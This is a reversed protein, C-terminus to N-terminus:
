EHHEAARSGATQHLAEVYHIYEVYSAVYRRGAPVSAEAGKKLAAAQAFKERLGAAVRETIERIMEDASGTDLARDALAIGPDVSGAPKLGTYPLKEGQRHVRVLTEFFYLDALERAYVCENRASLARDFAQEVEKEDEVRVWKLAPTVDQKMLAARADRVVPGDLTDCHARVLAPDLVALALVACAAMVSSKMEM